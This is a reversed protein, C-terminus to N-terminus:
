RSLLAAREPHEDFWKAVYWCMPVVRRDSTAEVDDMAFKVVEAAYGNGRLKPDTFTHNFSISSGNIVYDASAVLQGDIRLVYRHAQEDHVLTRSATTTV